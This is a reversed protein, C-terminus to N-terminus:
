AADPGEHVTRKVTRLPIVEVNSVLKLQAGPKPKFQGRRWLRYDEGTSGGAVRFKLYDQRVWEPTPRRHRPGDEDRWREADGSFNVQKDLYEHALRLQDRAIDLEDLAIEIAERSQKEEETLPRRGRRKPSPPEIHYRKM